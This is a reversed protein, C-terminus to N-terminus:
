KNKTRGSFGRIRLTPIRGRGRGYGLGRGGVPPQRRQLRDCVGDSNCDTFGPGQGSSRGRGCGGRGQGYGWRRGYGRGRSRSYRRGFGRERGGAPPQKKQLRDCVGDSNKDAFGQGRGQCRLYCRCSSRPCNDCVGDGSKDIFNDCEGDNTKDVYCCGQANQLQAPKDQAQVVSVVLLVLVGMVITSLFSTRRRM